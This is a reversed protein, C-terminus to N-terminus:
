FIWRANAARQPDRSGEEVQLMSRTRFIDEGDVFLMVDAWKRKITINVLLGGIM